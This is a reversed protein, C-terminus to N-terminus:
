KLLGMIVSSASKVDKDIFQVVCYTLQQYYIGISKTKHLPILARWLFIRHEEKMPLAFGSTVSGFIELLEAIGNHRETGFVLDYIIFSVAKRIFPRHVM